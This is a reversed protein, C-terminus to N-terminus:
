RHATRPVHVGSHDERLICTVVTVGGRPDPVVVLGECRQGGVGALAEDVVDVSM